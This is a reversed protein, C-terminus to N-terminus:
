RTICVEGKVNCVACTNLLYKVNRLQCNTKNGCALQQLNFNNCQPILKNSGPQQRCWGDFDWDWSTCTTVPPRVTCSQNAFSGGLVGNKCVRTESNCSETSAVNASQYASVSQGHGISGGWPLPCSKAPEVICSKNSYSGSLIGNSCSRTQSQCTLGFPASATKYATVSQGDNITGGWPLACRAGSCSGSVQEWNGNGCSFTASGVSPATSDSVNRSVGDPGSAASASCTFAGTAWNVTQTTCDGCPMVTCSSFNGSGSLTGNSCTRTTGSPCNSGCAVSGTSFATISQEHSISGGWPLPCAGPTTETCNQNSFTGSLTGDKCRRAESECKQGFPVSATKYAIISSGDFVITGWPSTCDRPPVPPAVTCAKNAFSGSLAGNVCTRTESVCKEGSPVGAAQFATVSRGSQINQGWPTMCDALIPRCVIGTGDRGGIRAVVGASGDPNELSLTDGSALFNFNHNPSLAPTPNVCGGSSSDYLQGQSNCGLIVNIDRQLVLVRKQLPLATGACSAATTEQKIGQGSFFQAHASTFSM